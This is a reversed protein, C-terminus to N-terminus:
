RAHDESSHQPTRRLRLAALSALIALLAGGGQVPSSGSLASVACGGGSDGLENDSDPSASSPKGGVCFSLASECAEVNQFELSRCAGEDIASQFSSCWETVFGAPPLVCENRLFAQFEEPSPDQQVFGELEPPSYCEDVLLTEERSVLRQARVWYCIEDTGPVIEFYAGTGYRDFRIEGNVSTLYTYQARSTGFAELHFIGGTWASLSFTAFEGEPNEASPAKSVCQVHDRAENVGSTLKPAVIPSTVTEDLVTFPAPDGDAYHALYEGPLWPSAPTFAWAGVGRLDSLETVVGDVPTGDATSIWVEEEV